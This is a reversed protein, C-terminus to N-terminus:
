DLEGGPEETGDAIAHGDQHSGVLHAERSVDGGLDAEGFAAGVGALLALTSWSKEIVQDCMEEIVDAAARAVPGPTSGHLLIRFPQPTQLVAPLMASYYLRIRWFPIGLRTAVLGAFYASFWGRGYDRMGLVITVTGDVNFRIAWKRDAPLLPNMAVTEVNLNRAKTSQVLRIENDFARGYATDVNVAHLETAAIDM